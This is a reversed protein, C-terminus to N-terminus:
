LSGCDSESAVSGAFVFGAGPLTAQMFGANMSSDGILTFREKDTSFYVGAGKFPFSWQNTTLPIQLAMPPIDEDPEVRFVPSLDLVGDPPPDDTETLTVMVEGNAPTVLAQVQLSASETNLTGSLAVADGASVFDGESSTNTGPPCSRSM